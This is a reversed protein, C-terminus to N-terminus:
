SMVHTLGKEFARLTLDLDAESHALSIFGAEFPSPAIYIGEELLLHFLKKFRKADCKRASDASTVPDHSFFFSFMSGVRNVQIPVGCRSAIGRLGGELFSGKEELRAYVKEKKLEALTAIGASMALPNGSLTGAQYVPGLPAVKEMIEKRGGYAGVPLGGGIIKGLCTLDPQIKYLAQAGGLAVRFGTMVEDFILLAGEKRTLDSLGELFGSAPPICGMNGVVPEVIVAAIQDKNQELLKKVSELDNFRAVLTLSAFESPVGASDPVGLTAAGSGAKVLLYDAHGHYCGDFKVIKNRGTFGRAARIASMTAETGSNVFRILEVSPFAQRVLKALEIERVTSAGFSLGDKMAEYVARVVEPSAHGLIAPGWSGVYDVFENGDADYVHSGRVRTIFLPTGGVSKFARVPSNVGGVLYRCAEEFLKQSTDSKM